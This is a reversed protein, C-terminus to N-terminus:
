ALGRCGTPCAVSDCVYQPDCRTVTVDSAPDPACFLPSACAECDRPCDAANCVRQLMCSAAGADRGPICSFGARGVSTIQCAACGPSCQGPGCVYLTACNSADGRPDPLCEWTGPKFPRADCSTDALIVDALIGDDGAETAADAPTIDTTSDDASTDGADGPATPACTSSAGAAIMTALVRAPLILLPARRYPPM